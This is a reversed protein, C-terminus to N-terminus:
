WNQTVLTANLLLELWYLTENTEKRSINITHIFETRSHAYTAESYNAGMSSTSRIIQNGIIINEQSKALTKTLQIIGVAFDILRDRLEASNSKMKQWLNDIM